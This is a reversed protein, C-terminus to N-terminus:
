QPEKAPTTTLARIDSKIQRITSRNSCAAASIGDLIAKDAIWWCREFAQREIERKYDGSIIFDCLALAETRGCDCEGELESSCLLRHDDYHEHLKRALREAEDPTM